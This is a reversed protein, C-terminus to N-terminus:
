REPWFAILAVVGVAGLAQWWPVGVGPVEARLLGGKPALAAETQVRAAAAQDAQIQLRALEIATAGAARAAELEALAADAQYRAQDRLAEAARERQRPGGSLVDAIQATGQVIQVTAQTYPDTGASGAAGADAGTEWGGTALARFDMRVGNGRGEM